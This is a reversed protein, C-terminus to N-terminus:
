EEGHSKGEGFVKMKGVERSGVGDRAEGDGDGLGVGGEEGYDLFATGIEFGNDGLLKEWGKRTYLMNGFVQSMFRHPVNDAALRKEDYMEETTGVMDEALVTSCSLIYSDTISQGIFLWGRWKGAVIEMEERIFHFLSFIAFAADFQQSPRYQLMDVLEFTGGLVNTRSLSIMAPSFDIGHLKRGSQVISLFTPIGTGSGIDLVSANPSLLELSSKIFALLGPDHGYYKDYRDSISDYFKPADNIAASTTTSSSM